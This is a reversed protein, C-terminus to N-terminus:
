LLPKPSGFFDKQRQTNCPLLGLVEPIAARQRHGQRVVLPAPAGCAKYPGCAYAWLLLARRRALRRGM